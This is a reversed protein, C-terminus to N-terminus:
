GEVLQRHPVMAKIKEYKLKLVETKTSADQKWVNSHKGKPRALTKRQVSLTTRVPTMNVGQLLPTVWVKTSLLRKVLIMNVGQPLPTVWAITSLLKKVLTM